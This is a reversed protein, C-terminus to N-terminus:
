VGQAYKKELSQDIDNIMKRFKISDYKGGYQVM